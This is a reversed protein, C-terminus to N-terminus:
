NVHALMRRGSDPFAHGIHYAQYVCDNEARFSCLQSIYLSPRSATEIVVYYGAPPCIRAASNAHWPQNHTRMGLLVVLEVGEPRPQPDYFLSEFYIGHSAQSVVASSISSM